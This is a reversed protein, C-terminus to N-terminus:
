LIPEDAPPPDVTVPFEGVWSGLVEEFYGDPWGEAVEQSVVAALYKSLSVGDAKARQRLKEAVEEPVYFHLQPM